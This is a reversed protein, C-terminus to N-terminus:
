PTMPDDTFFVLQKGYLHAFIQLEVVDVRREGMEVKSVFSQPRGIMEAVQDQTLDAEIRARRLKECFRAYAQEYTNKPLM